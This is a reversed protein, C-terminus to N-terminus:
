PHMGYYRGLVYRSRGAVEWLRGTSTQNRSGNDRVTGRSDKLTGLKM